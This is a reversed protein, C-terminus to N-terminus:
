IEVSKVYDDVTHVRNHEVFVRLYSLGHLVNKIVDRSKKKGNNYKNEM